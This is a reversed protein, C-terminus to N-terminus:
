RRHPRAHYPTAEGTEIDTPRFTGAGCPGEEPLWAPAADAFVLDGSIDVAGDGCADSMVMVARGNPAVLMVDVDNPGGGEDEGRYSLGHLTVSVDAVTGSLGSTSVSSPYPDAKDAPCYVGPCGQPPLALPVVIPEPNTPSAPPSAPPLPATGPHQETWAGNRWTWTDRLHGPGHPDTPGDTDIAWGDTGSFLVVGVGDSAMNAVYRPSPAQPLDDHEAWTRTGADFSWTDGLYSWDDPRQPDAPGYGGFLLVQRSSADYAMAPGRRPTPGPTTVQSWAAGDWVWTDGLPTYGDYCACSEKWTPVSGGFLVTLRNAEDYATGAEERVPPRFRHQQPGEM